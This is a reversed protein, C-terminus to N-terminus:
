LTVLRQPHNNIWPKGRIGHGITILFYTPHYPINKIQDTQLRSHLKFRNDDFRIFIHNRLHFLAVPMNYLSSGIIQAAFVIEGKGM